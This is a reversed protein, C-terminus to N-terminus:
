SECAVGDGDRDRASTYNADGPTFDSGVGSAQLEKCTGGVYGGQSEIIPMVTEVEQEEVQQEVPEEVQQSAITEAETSQAAAKKAIAYDYNREYEAIKAQAQSYDDSSIPIENLSVIASQWRWAVNAWDVSSEAAALDATAAIAEATAEEYASSPASEIPPAAETVKPPAVTTAAPEHAEGTLVTLLLVGSFISGGIKGALPWRSRWLLPIGLPPFLLLSGLIWRKQQHWKQSNQPKSMSSGILVARQKRCWRELFRVPKSLMLPVQLLSKTAKVDRASYDKFYKM